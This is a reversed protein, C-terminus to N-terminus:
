VFNYSVEDNEKPEYEEMRVTEGNVEIRNFGQKLDIELQQKLSRGERLLIRTLVMYRTGEPYQLMCNVIDEVSHKKVEEGSVPSFTRGIRAFLLRMYEYIETSTGYYSRIAYM